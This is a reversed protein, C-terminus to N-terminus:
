RKVIYDLGDRLRLPPRGILQETASHDTSNDLALMKLQESTVPPRISKPLPASLSVIMKMLGVPMHVKSKRKGLKESVLDLLQEYTLVDPGGLEYTQGATAPDDVVAVFADAVDRVSLPQFKTQGDGVVPIVPFSRVVGALANIFGDGPGFIISPRFITWALGSGRVAEEARWKAQMYAFGPRDAAGLASMNIFRRVGAAKAAEVVNVTGQRIVNDFTAGGSEEIIAVLHIVTECGTVAAPLTAPKTVDGEVMEIDQSLPIEAKTRDRILLRLSRGGLANVVASGVFGTGGTVLIPM